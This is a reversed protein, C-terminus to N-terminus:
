NKMSKDLLKTMEKAWKNKGNLQTQASWCFAGRIDPHKESLADWERLCDNLSPGHRYDASLGVVVKKADGLAEVWTDTRASIFGPDSFGSWDYYQPGAWDLVGAKAMVGMMLQQEPSNPQPPSTIAFDDGYTAKLQQAIWVMETMVAVVNAPSVINAEYNNFDIGDFGGLRAYMTKVSALFNESQSRRDFAFGAHAGGVTLIVRQGRDRVEQVMEAPIDEYHEFMFSGDGVNNYNGNVPKGDPKAHFLYIVNFEQPVDSLKYTGTDWCTYYCGLIKEPMARSSPEPAASAEVPAQAPARAPTVSQQEAEATGDANSLDTGGGGGGCGTLAIVAAATSSRLFLRRQMSGSQLYSVDWM